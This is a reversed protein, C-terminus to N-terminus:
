GAFTASHACRGSVYLHTAVNAIGNNTLKQIVEKSTHSTVRNLADPIWGIINKAGLTVELVRWFSLFSYAHHQLGRAERLLALALM